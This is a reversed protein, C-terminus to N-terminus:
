GRNFGTIENIRNTLQELREYMDMLNLVMAKHEIIHADLGQSVVKMTTTDLIEFIPRRDLGQRVYYRYKPKEPSQNTSNLELM